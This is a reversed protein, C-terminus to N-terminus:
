LWHWQEPSEDANLESKQVGDIELDMQQEPNEYAHKATLRPEM